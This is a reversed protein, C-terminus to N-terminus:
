NSFPYRNLVVKFIFPPFFCLFLCVFLCVVWVSWSRGVACSLVRHLTKSVVHIVITDTWVKQTKFCFIFKLICYQLQNLTLPLWSRIIILFIYQGSCVSFLLNAFLYTGLTKTAKGSNFEPFAVFCIPAIQFSGQQSRGGPSGILFGGSTM